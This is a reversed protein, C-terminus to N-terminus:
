VLSVQIDHILLLDLELFLGLLCFRLSLFFCLDWSICLVLHCFILCRVLTRYTTLYKWPRGLLGCELPVDVVFMRAFLELFCKTLTKWVSSSFRLLSSFCQFSILIHATCCCWSFMSLVNGHPNLIARPTKFLIWSSDSSQKKLAADASCANAAFNSNQSSCRWVACDDFCM